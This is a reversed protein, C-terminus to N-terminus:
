NEPTQYIIEETDTNGNEIKAVLAMAEIRSKEEYYISNEPENLRFSFHRYQTPKGWSVQFSCDGGLPTIRKVTVKNQTDM